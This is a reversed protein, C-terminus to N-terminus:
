WTAGHAEVFRQGTRIKNLRRRRRDDELPAEISRNSRRLDIITGQADDVRVIPRVPDTVSSRIIWATSYNDLMVKPVLGM